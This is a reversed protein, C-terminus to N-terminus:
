IVRVNDKGGYFDWWATASKALIANLAEINKVGQDELWARFAAAGEQVFSPIGGQWTARGCLVGSYPTGAEAALELSERFVEDTVGASLYIFPLKSVAAAERFYQAAERRSYIYVNESNAKSGEVFRMNVPVEVKLIDVRYHAKSFEEMTKLVKIPKARAYDPGREDGIAKGYTVPEFFFPVDNAACEAGVREVFAHKRRTTAADDDPDYQMVVKIAQAGAEALNRVSWEPMLDPMRSASDYGSQEYALLLGVNSPRRKAADLGFEADLLVASAHPSLVETVLTKFEIVEADSAPSGKAASIGKHLSGRQDMALAAIVGREDACANIGNFKGRTMNVTGM